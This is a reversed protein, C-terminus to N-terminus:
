REKRHEVEYQLKKAFSLLYNMCKQVHPIHMQDSRSIIIDRNINEAYSCDKIIMGSMDLMDLPIPSVWMYSDRIKDLLSIQSGRDYVFVQKRKSAMKQDQEMVNKNIQAQKIIPFQDDGHIIETYEALQEYSIDQCSALPHDKKLVIRM